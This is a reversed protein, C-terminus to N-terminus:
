VRVEADPLENRVGASGLWLQTQVIGLDAIAVERMEAHSRGGRKGHTPDAEQLALFWVVRQYRGAIALAGDLVHVQAAEATPHPPTKM